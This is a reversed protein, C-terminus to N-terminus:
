HLFAAVACCKCWKLPMRHDDRSHGNASSDLQRQSFSGWLRKSLRFKSNQHGNSKFISQEFFFGLTSAEGRIQDQANHYYALFQIEPVPLFGNQSLGIASGLIMTEDLLTDFVRRSGFTNQLGQTVHYVGGKKGVDEGFVLMNEYQIMADVLTHNIIQSMNRPSSLKIYENGYFQKVNKKRSSATSKTPPEQKVLLPSMIEKASSLTPSGALSDSTLRVEKRVEEYLNLIEEKDMVNEKLLIQATHLLPDNFESSEIEKQNLYSIEVDAGAHGLLRTCQFHLFVPRRKQRCFEEAIQANKFTDAINLGDAKIYHVHPKNEQRHEIWHEPTKVSIGLRNDECVFVIPLPYNTYSMWEAANLATQASAHNYSADGFSCYVISNHEFISRIKLEKARTISLALGVAKPLHSAITSTQPPINLLKSGFVKHRGNSIPDLSSASFSM